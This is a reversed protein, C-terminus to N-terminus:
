RLIYTINVKEKQEKRIAPRFLVMRKPVGPISGKIIVYDEKVIGYNKFGGSPNIEEPNSGIKMILKNYETRRHFGLQGAQPVQWQTYAPHWSGLNGAKRRSKESKHSLLKVGHRKVPGQFGKGKTVAIVDVYEGEEFVNGIRVEKGFLEKGKELKEEIKGFLPIEFNEPTKKLGIRRPQTHVLIRVDSLKEVDVNELEKLDRTKKVNVKRRLDRSINEVFYDKLAIKGYLGKKMGNEYLRLGYVFLPPCEVITVASVKERIFDGFKYETLVRTMGVKYGSFGGLIKNSRILDEPIKLSPYIRKARKRPKYALSGRRPHHTKAMRGGEVSNIIRLGNFSLPREHPM